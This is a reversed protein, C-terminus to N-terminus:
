QSCFWLFLDYLAAGIVLFRTRVIRAGVFVNMAFSLKSLEGVSEQICVELLSLGLVSGNDRIHSPGTFRHLIETM